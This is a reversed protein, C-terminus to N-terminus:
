TDRENKRRDMWVDLIRRILEATPVGLKRAEKDLAKKQRPTLYINTRYMMRKNYMM